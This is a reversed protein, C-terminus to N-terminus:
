WGYGAERVLQEFLDSWIPTHREILEIKWDRRWRKMLYERHRASGADSLHARYVLPRGRNPLDSFIGAHIVRRLGGATM